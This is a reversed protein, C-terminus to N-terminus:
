QIPNSLLSVLLSALVTLVLLILSSFRNGEYKTVLKPAPKPTSKPDAPSPKM